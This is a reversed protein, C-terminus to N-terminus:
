TALTKEYYTMRKLFFNAQYISVKVRTVCTRAHFTSLAFVASLELGSARPLQVDRAVM